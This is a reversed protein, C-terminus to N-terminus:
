RRLLRAIFSGVIVYIVTALGYNVAVELKRNDLTFVDKFPGVLFKAADLLAKVVSNDKNAELVVLAIGIVIILAVIGTVLMVLSALLYGTSRAAGAVGRGRGSGAGPEGSGRRFFRAM